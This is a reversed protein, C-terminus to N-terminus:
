EKGEKFRAISIWNLPLLALTFVSLYPLFGNYSAPADSIFYIKIVLLSVLLNFVRRRWDPELITWAALLYAALGALYWPLATLLCRSWLEYALVQHMYSWLIIFNLIDCVLVIAVGFGLMQTIVTLHSVPLHLTLKLCKHYMEPAFQVVALLLGAVLPVYKLYDVFVVDHTLMIEWVHGIGKLAIVRHLRLLCYGAFGSTSLFMLLLYWRTKIWEKYYM